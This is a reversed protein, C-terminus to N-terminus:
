EGRMDITYRAMGEQMSWWFQANVQPTDQLLRARHQQVTQVITHQVVQVHTARQDEHKHKTAQVQQHAYPLKAVPQQAPRSATAAAHVQQM